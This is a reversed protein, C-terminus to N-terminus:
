LTPSPCPISPAPCPQLRWEKAPHEIAARGADNLPLDSSGILRRHHDIDGHRLLTLTYPNM